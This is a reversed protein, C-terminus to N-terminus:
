SIQAPFRWAESAQAIKRATDELMPKWAAIDKLSHRATTTTVSLAGLVSGRESIIPAAICIIGPEHEERDYAIGAERIRALEEALAAQTVLTSQTYRHFSQQSISLKRESEHQFAMIAKGVGTCYGPGVKGAQSFMEVPDRANRKDIYLVQGSVMHALHVTEGTKKALSDILPRAHPALSSQSWARHALQVLRLGLTYTHADHDYSLMGQSVLTQLLRHLTAKPHPSQSQIDSFRLPNPAQAVLELIDLAKGVTGDSRTQLNM